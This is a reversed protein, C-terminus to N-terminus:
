GKLLRKQIFRDPTRKKRYMHLEVGTPHDEHSLRTMVGKKVIYDSKNDNTSNSVFPFLAFAYIGSILICFSVLM